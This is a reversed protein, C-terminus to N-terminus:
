IEFYSWSLGLGGITADDTSRSAASLQSAFCCMALETAAEAVPLRENWQM